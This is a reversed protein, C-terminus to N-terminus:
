RLHTYGLRLWPTLLTCCTLVRNLALLYDQKLMILCRPMGASTVRSFFVRM